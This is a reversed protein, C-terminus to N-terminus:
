LEGIICEMLRDTVYEIAPLDSLYKGDFTSRYFIPELKKFLECQSYDSPGELWRRCSLIAEVGDISPTGRFFTDKDYSFANEDPYSYRTWEGHNENLYLDFGESSHYTHGLGSDLLGSRNPSGGVLGLRSYLPYLDVGGGVFVSFRPFSVQHSNGDENSISVKGSPINFAMNREAGDARGPPVGSVPVKIEAPWQVQIVRDSGPVGTNHYTSVIFPGNELHSVLNPPLECTAANQTFAPNAPISLASLLVAGKIINEM